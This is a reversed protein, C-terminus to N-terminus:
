RLRRRSLGSRHVCHADAEAANYSYKRKGNEVSLSLGGQAAAFGAAVFMSTVFMAMIVIYMSFGRESRPSPTVQM